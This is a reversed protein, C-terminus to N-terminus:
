NSNHNLLPRHSLLHILHGYASTFARSSPMAGRLALTGPTLGQGAWDAIQTTFRGSIGEPRELSTLFFRLQLINNGNNQSLTDSYLGVQDQVTQGGVTAEGICPGCLQALM